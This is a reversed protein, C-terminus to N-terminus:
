ALHPALRRELLDILHPDGRYYLDEIDLVVIPKATTPFREEIVDRHYPEMVFIVDAWDLVEETVPNEEPDADLVDTGASRVEYRPDRRYLDEATRSRNQNATCVFLIRNAM